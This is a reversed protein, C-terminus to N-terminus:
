KCISCPPGGMKCTCPRSRDPYEVYTVEDTHVVIGSLTLYDKGASLFTSINGISDKIWHIYRKHTIPKPPEIYEIYDLPTSLVFAKKNGQVKYVLIYEGSDLEAVCEYILNLGSNIHRYKRFLEM